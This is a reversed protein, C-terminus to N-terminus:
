GRADLRNQEPSSSIFVICLYTDLQKNGFSEQKEMARDFEWVVEEMFKELAFVTELNDLNQNKFLLFTTTLRNITYATNQGPEGLVFVSSGAVLLDNEPPSGLRLFIGNSSAHVNLHALKVFPQMHSEGVNEEINTFNPRPNGLVESAWWYDNKWWNDSKFYGGYKERVYDYNSKIENFDSDTLPAYSLEESYKRYQLARRYDEIASHALYRKALENENVSIFQAIISVEHLTRWRAHAGDAFGGRLLTLIESSVQCGRAHIGRLAFFVADNKNSVISSFKLSFENGLELSLSILAELLDLSKGWVKNHYKIFEHRESKIKRLITKSQRKWSKILEESLWKATEIGVHGAIDFIKEQFADLDSQQFDLELGINDGGFKELLKKQARNPKFTFGELDSKQIHSFLKREQRQTLEIGYEQSLKDKMLLLMMKEQSFNEDLVKNFLEGLTDEM